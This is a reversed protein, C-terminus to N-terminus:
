TQLTEHNNEDQTKVRVTKPYKQAGCIAQPVAADSFIMQLEEV